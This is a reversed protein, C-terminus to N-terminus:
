EFVKKRNIQLSCGNELVINEDKMEIYEGEELRYIIMEEKEPDVIIYFPLGAELYKNYKLFKDKEKTSTSLIEVAIAPTNYIFDRDDNDCCIVIDPRLVNKDDLHWDLSYIIECGFKNVSENLMFLINSSIRQHRRNASPCMAYPIGDILEWDGEWMEYDSVTYQPLYQVKIASM